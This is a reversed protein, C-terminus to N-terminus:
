GQRKNVEEVHRLLADLAIAYETSTEEPRQVRSFFTAIPTTATSGEGFEELLELIAAEATINGGRSELNLIVDRGRGRSHRVVEPFKINQPQSAKAEM